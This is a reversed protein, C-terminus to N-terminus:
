ACLRDEGVIMALAVPLPEILEELTCRRDIQVFSALRVFEVSHPVLGESTPVRGLGPVDLLVVQSVLFEVVSAPLMLRFTSSQHVRGVVLEQAMAFCTAKSLFAKVEATLSLGFFHGPTGYLHTIRDDVFSRVELCRCGTEASLPDVRGTTHRFSM